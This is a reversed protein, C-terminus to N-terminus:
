CPGYISFLYAFAIRTYQLQVCAYVRWNKKAIQSLFSFSPLFLIIIRNITRSILTLSLIINSPSFSLAQSYREGFHPLISVFFCVFFCRSYHDPRGFITFIKNRPSDVLKHEIYEINNFPVNRVAKM